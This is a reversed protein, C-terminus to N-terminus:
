KRLSFPKFHRGKFERAKYKYLNIPYNSTACVRHNSMTMQLLIQLMRQGRSGDCDLEADTRELVTACMDEVLSRFRKPKCEM